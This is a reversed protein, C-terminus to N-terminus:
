LVRLSTTILATEIKEWHSELSMEGTLVMLWACQKAQRDKYLLLYCPM